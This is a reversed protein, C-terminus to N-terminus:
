CDSAQKLTNEILEPYRKLNQIFVRSKKDKIIREMKRAQCNSECQISLFLIWPVGRSTFKVPDIPHNHQLLRTQIDGTMGVYFRDLRHSYLIYVFYHM